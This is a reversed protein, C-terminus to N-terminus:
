QGVVLPESLVCEFDMYVRHEGSELSERGNWEFNAPTREGLHRFIERYLRYEILRKLRPDALVTHHEAVPAHTADSRRRMTLVASGFFRVPSDAGYIAGESVLDAREIREAFSSLPSSDIVFGGDSVVGDARVIQGRVKAQPQKAVLFPNPRM